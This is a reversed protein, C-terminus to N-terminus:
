GKELSDALVSQTCDRCLRTVETPLMNKGSAAMCHCPSTPLKYKDGSDEVFCVSWSLGSGCRSWCVDSVTEDKPHMVFILICTIGLVIMGTSLNDTLIYVCAANFGGWALTKLFVM